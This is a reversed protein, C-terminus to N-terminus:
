RDDYRKRSSPITRKDGLKGSKLLSERKPQTEEVPTKIPTNAPAKNSRLEVNYNKAMNLLIKSAGQQGSREADQMIKKGITRFYVQEDYASALDLEAIPSLVWMRYSAAFAEDHHQKAQEIVFLKSSNNYDEVLEIFRTEEDSSTNAKQVYKTAVWGCGALIIIFLVLTDKM